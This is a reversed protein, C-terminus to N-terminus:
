FINAGMMGMFSLKKVSLVDFPNCMISTPNTNVM